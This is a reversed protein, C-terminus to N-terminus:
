RKAISVTANYDPVGGQPDVHGRPILCNLEPWHGQLTGPAVDAIFVRGHYVGHENRVEIL